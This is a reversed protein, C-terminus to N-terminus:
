YLGNIISLVELYMKECYVIFLKVNEFKKIFEFLLFDYLFKFM